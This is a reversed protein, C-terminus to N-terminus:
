LGKVTTIIFKIDQVSSPLAMGIGGTAIHIQSVGRQQRLIDTAGGQAQSAILQSLHQIQADSFQYSWISDVKVSFAGAEDQSATIQQPFSLMSGDVEYGQGLLTSGDLQLELKAMSTVDDISFYIGKCTVTGKATVNEAHDNSHHDTTVNVLCDLTSVAQQGPKAQNQVSTQADNTLQDRLSSTVQDIDDQQVFHFADQGGSFPATNQLSFQTSSDSVLQYIGDLDDAPINGNAGAQVAIADYTHSTGPLVSVFFASHIIIAVGSGSTVKVDSTLRGQILTVTVQGHAFTADQSGTAQVTKSQVPTTATYLYGQVQDPGPNGTVVNVTYTKTLRKSTPTLMVVASSAPIITLAYYSLLPLLTILALAVGIRVPHKPKKLALSRKINSPTFFAQLKSVQGKSAEPAAVRMQAEPIIKWGLAAIFDLVGAFREAPEIALAKLLATEISAPLDPRLRTPPIPPQAPVQGTFLEYAVCALAYQDSAEDGVRMYQEPAMYAQQESQGTPLGTLAFDSILVSGEEDLLVREPTLQRHTIHRQHAYALAQGIPRIFAAVEQSTFPRNAQRQSDIRDRLTTLSLSSRPAVTYFLDQHMGVAKLPLISPHELEVLAQGEQLLTTHQEITRFNSIQWISIVVPLSPAFTDEALYRPRAFADALPSIIRYNGIFSDTNLM